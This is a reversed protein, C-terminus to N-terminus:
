AVEREEDYFDIFIQNNSQKKLIKFQESFYYNNFNSKDINYKECIEILEDADLEFNNLLLFISSILEEPKKYAIKKIDEVNFDIEYNEYIKDLIWIQLNIVNNKRKEDFLNYILNTLRQVIKIYVDQNTLVNKEFFCIRKKHISKLLQKKLVEKALLYCGEFDLVGFYGGTSLFLREVDDKCLEYTFSNIDLM